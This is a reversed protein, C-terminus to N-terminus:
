IEKICILGEAQADRLATEFYKRYCVLVARAHVCVAEERQSLESGLSGFPCGVVHGYKAKLEVQKEYLFRFYSRLRDLAPVSASFIADLQPRVREWLSVFAAEALESKSDFFYYFSGKRVNAATCIADVTVSCYSHQWILDRASELMRERANSIRGM